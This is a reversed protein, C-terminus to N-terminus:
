HLRSFLPRSGKFSCHQLAQIMSLCGFWATMHCPRWHLMAPAAGLCPWPTASIQLLDAWAALCVLPLSLRM